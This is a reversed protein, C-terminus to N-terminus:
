GRCGPWSRSRAGSRGFRTRVLVYAVLGGLMMTATAGLLGLLLTNGLARWVLRNQWAAEYHELTLM